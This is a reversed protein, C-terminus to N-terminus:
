RVGGVPAVSQPTSSREHSSRFPIGRVSRLAVQENGKILIRALFQTGQATTLDEGIIRITDGAVLSLHNAELLRANGLHVDVSGSSTQLTVHAGFESAASSPEYKLVTGQLTLERSLDYSQLRRTDPQAKQQAAASVCLVLAVAFVLPIALIRITPKM